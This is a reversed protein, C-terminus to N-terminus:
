KIETGGWEVAVFGTRIPTQLKQEEVDIPKDLGKYTMLVRILTDPQVSFEIPMNKNIEEITAFRIYNYKNKQLKPLWYVIFEEAERETLGLIALKEELFGIVDSNKVIFGHKKIEFNYIAESEYYLAYLKRNTNLDILDGTPKAIVNWGTRYQPYSCTIKNEYGLKISLEITQPPYLYIIPKDVSIEEQSNKFVEDPITVVYDSYTYYYLNNRTRHTYESKEILYTNKNIYYTDTGEKPMDVNIIYYKDTEELTCTYGSTDVLPYEGYYYPNKESNSLGLVLSWEYTLAIDYLMKERSVGYEFEYSNGMPTYKKSYSEGYATYGNKNNYSGFVSTSSIFDIIQLPKTSDSITISHKQVISDLMKNFIKNIEENNTHIYANQALVKNDEYTYNTDEIPSKGIINYYEELEYTDQIKINTIKKETPIIIVYASIDATVGAADDWIYLIADSKDYEIGALRAKLIPNGKSVYSFIIYNWNKNTYKKELNWKSCYDAYESYNMTTSVEFSTIDDYNYNYLNLFNLNYEGSYDDKIIYYDKNNYNEIYYGNDGSLIIKSNRNNYFTIYIILGIIMLMIISVIVIIKKTYIKSIKKEEM